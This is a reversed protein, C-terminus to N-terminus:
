KSRFDLFLKRYSIAIFSRFANRRSRPRMTLSIFVKKGDGFVLFTFIQSRFLLRFEFAKVTTLLIETSFDSVAFLPQREVIWVSPTANYGIAQGNRAGATIENVDPLCNGQSIILPQPIVNLM